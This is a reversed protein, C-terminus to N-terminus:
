LTGEPFPCSGDKAIRVGACVVLQSPLELRYTRGDVEYTIRWGDSVFYGPRTVEFGLLLEWAKPHVSESTIPTSIPVPDFLAKPVPPWEPIAQWTEDRYPSGLRAGLYRLGPDLGIVSIETIVATDDTGERLALRDLGYTFREGATYNSLSSGHPGTGRDLPGTSTPIGAYPLLLHGLAAITISALLLAALRRSDGPQWWWSRRARLWTRAQEATTSV